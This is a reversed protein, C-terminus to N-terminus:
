QGFLWLKLLAWLLLGTFAIASAFGFLVDSGSLNLERPLMAKQEVRAATVRSAWVLTGGRPVTPMTNEAGERAEKVGVM